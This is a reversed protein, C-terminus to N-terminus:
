RDSMDYRAAEQYAQYAPIVIASVTAVLFVLPMVLGLITVGLTNPVPAPGYDNEGETGKFFVLYIALFLNVVPVLFLLLLWASKNLDNIRRKGFIVAFVVLALYLLVSIGGFALGTPAGQPEAGAAAGVAAGLGVMISMVVLNVGTTYALYRLRGIRGSVSFVKPQYREDSTMGVVAEPTMYPNAASM